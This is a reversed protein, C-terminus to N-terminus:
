FDITINFFNNVLEDTENNRIEADYWEDEKIPIFEFYDKLYEEFDFDLDDVNDITETHTYGSGVVYHLLDIRYM